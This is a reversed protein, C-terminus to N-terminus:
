KRNFLNNIIIREAPVFHQYFFFRGGHRKCSANGGVQCVAALGRLICDMMTFRVPKLFRNPKTEKEVSMRDRVPYKINVTIKNVM